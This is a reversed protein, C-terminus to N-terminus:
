RATFCWGFSEQPSSPPGIYTPARTPTPRLYKVTVLDPKLSKALDIKTWKGSGLPAIQRVTAAM